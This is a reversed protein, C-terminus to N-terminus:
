VTAGPSINKLFEQNRKKITTIVRYCEDQIIKEVKVEASPDTSGFEIALENALRSGLPILISSHVAAIQGVYAKVVERDILEQRAKARNQRSTLIKERKLEDDLDFQEEDLNGTAKPPRIPKPSAIVPPMEYEPNIPTITKATPKISNAPKKKPHKEQKDIAKNKRDAMKELYRVTRTDHLNILGDATLILNGRSVALSVAARSVGYQKALDSQTIADMSFM